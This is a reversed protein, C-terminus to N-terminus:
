NYDEYLSVLFRVLPQLDRPAIGIKRLEDDAHRLGGGRSRASAAIYFGVAAHLDSIRGNHMYPASHGLDRLTPTKFAAISRELAQDATACEAGDRCFWRRLLEQSKPYDDNLFVNWAGLDTALPESESAAKRFMERRDPHTATAPLYDDAREMRQQATPIRLKWFSGSGHVAEYEIQTVGINHLGFDTFHPAPHCAVCNGAGRAEAPKRSFFIRMGELETEGFAYPQDHFRFGGGDTAPNGRVFQLAGREALAEVQALLRESYAETSEDPGPSRPLGNADLFLDYPAMSEAEASFALDDLYHRILRAAGALVEDCSSTSADMRGSEAIRHEAPLAEGSMSMGAFVERYALGGFEQALEGTGDDQRIVDCAHRAALGGERPRWGLNRGTLTAVILDQASAFEGDAHLVFHGRQLAGVLVPSNRVTESQGDGREPLPSRSAFDAYARMGLEKQGVHEDVLHCARCNYSAGKFPGEAFPIQYPPLGFFRSTKELKPDGEGLPENIGGGGAVFEHFRQAFRTELFLREGHFVEAAPPPEEAAHAFHSWGAALCAALIATRVSM